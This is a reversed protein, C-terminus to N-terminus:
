TLRSYLNGPYLTTPPPASDQQRGKRELTENMLASLFCVLFVRKEASKARAEVDKGSWPSSWAAQM